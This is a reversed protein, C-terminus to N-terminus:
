EGEAGRVGGEGRWSARRRGRIHDSQYLAGARQQSRSARWLAAFEKGRGGLAGLIMEPKATIVAELTVSPTLQTMDLLRERRRM